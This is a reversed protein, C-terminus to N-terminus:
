ARVGKERIAARNERVICRQEIELPYQTKNIGIVWTKRLSAQRFNSEESRQEVACDERGHRDDRL